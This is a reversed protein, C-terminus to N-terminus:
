GSPLQLPVLNKNGLETSFTCLGINGDEMLLWLLTTTQHASLSIGLLFIINGRSPLVAVEALM